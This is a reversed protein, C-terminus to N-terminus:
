HPEHPVQKPSLNYCGWESELWKGIQWEPYRNDILYARRAGLVYSDHEWWNAGCVAQHVEDDATLELMPGGANYLRYTCPVEQQPEGTRVPLPTATSLMEVCRELRTNCSVLAADNALVCGGGLVLLALLVILKGTM